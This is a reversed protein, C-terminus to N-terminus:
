HVEYIQSIKCAASLKGFATAGHSANLDFDRKFIMNNLTTMIFSNLFFLMVRDFKSIKSWILNQM